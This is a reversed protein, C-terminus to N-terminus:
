ELGMKRMLYPEVSLNSRKKIHFPVYFGDKGKALHNLTEESESTPRNPPLITWQVM